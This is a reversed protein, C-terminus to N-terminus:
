SVLARCELGEERFRRLLALQEQETACQVLIVFQEATETVPKPQSQSALRARVQENQQALSGWLTELSKQATQVSEALRQVTQANTQALAALPDLTLLLKRAEEETVDLLEVTVPLDPHLEARLHGDILQIRGDPLRYGLLSRAFGFEEYSAALAQRQQRPHERFNLPHPVLDGARVTVHAIIRNRISM